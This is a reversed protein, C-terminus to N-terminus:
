HAEGDEVRKTRRVIAHAALSVGVSVMLYRALHHAGVFVPDLHLALALLMMTDQAGPSFAVIVEAPRVSVLSAAAVAFCGAVTIAVTFSGLSALAYSTLMGREVKAFRSGTVAGMAIMAGNALWWPLRAQVLGSGNLAASGLMAGFLWGGSFGARYVVYATAVSVVILVVLGPLTTAVVAAAKATAPGSLGFLALGSPIGVALLVVRLTQVVVIGRVDAGSDAAMAIIQALAGPSAGLLSSLPTWGHVFRLYSTTAVTMCLIALALIAISAPYRALGHLTEPSVVSGLAVGVIMLIVRTLDNPVLLPRGMLSVAAAAVISGSVLGAGSAEFWEELQRLEAERAV